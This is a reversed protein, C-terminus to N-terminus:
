VLAHNLDAEEGSARAAAHYQYIKCIDKTKLYKHAFIDLNTWLRAKKNDGAIAYDRPHELCFIPVGPLIDSLYFNGENEKSKYDEGLLMRIPLAGLALVIELTPIAKLVPLAKKYFCTHADQLDPMRVKIPKDDEVKKGKGKAKKPQEAQTKCQVVHTVFTDKENLNLYQVWKQWPSGGLDSLAQRCTMDDASPMDVLVGIRASFSGRGIFGPNNPSLKKLPCAICSSAVYSKVLEKPDAQQVPAEELGLDFLDM